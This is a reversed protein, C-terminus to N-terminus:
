REKKDLYLILTDKLSGMDRGIKEQLKMGGVINEITGCICLAKLDITM